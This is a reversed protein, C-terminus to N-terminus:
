FNPPNHITVFSAVIKFILCSTSYRTAFSAYSPSISSFYPVMGYSIIGPGFACNRQQIWLSLCTMLCLILRASPLVGVPSVGSKELPCLITYTIGDAHSSHG